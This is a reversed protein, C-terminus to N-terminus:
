RRLAMSGAPAAAVQPGYNWWGDENIAYVPRYFPEATAPLVENTLNDLVYLKGGSMVLLVAHAVRLQTDTVVAVRMNEAALGLSRLTMYKTIAFDECDGAHQLFEIPTEWYDLKGWNVDDSVYPFSNVAANVVRLQRLPDGVPLNARFSQWRRV